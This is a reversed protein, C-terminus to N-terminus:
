RTLQHILGIVALRTDNTTIGVPCTAFGNPKEVIDLWPNPGQILDVSELNAQTMWLAMHQGDSCEIDLVGRAVQDVSRYLYAPMSDQDLTQALRQVEPSLLNELTLEFKIGAQAFAKRTYKLAFKKSDDLAAQKMKVITPSLRGIANWVQDDDQKFRGGEQRKGDIPPYVTPSCNNMITLNKMRKFDELTCGSERSNYGYSIFTHDASYVMDELGKFPAFVFVTGGKPADKLEFWVADDSCKGFVSFMGAEHKQPENVRTGRYYKITGNFKTIDNAIREFLERAGEQDVVDTFVCHVEEPQSGLGMGWAVCDDMKGDTVFWM